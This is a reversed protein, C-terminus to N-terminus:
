SRARRREIQHPLLAAKALNCFGIHHRLLRRKGLDLLRERRQLALELLLSM